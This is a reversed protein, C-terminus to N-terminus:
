RAGSESRRRSASRRPGSSCAPDTRPVTGRRGPRQGPARRGRRPRLVLRPAPAAGRAARVRARARDDGWSLVGLAGSGSLSVETVRDAHEHPSPEEDHLELTSRSPIATCRRGSTSSGEADGRTGTRHRCRSLQDSAWPADGRQLYFQRYWPNVVVKAASVQMGRNQRGQRLSQPRAARRHSDPTRSVTPGSTGPEGWGPETQRVGGSSRRAVNVGHGRAQEPHAPEEVHLCQRVRQEEHEDGHQLRDDEGRDGEEHDLRSVLRAREEVDREARAQHADPRRREEARAARDLPLAPLARELQQDARRRREDGDEERQGDRGDVIPM